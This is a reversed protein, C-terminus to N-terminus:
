RSSYLLVHDRERFTALVDEEM